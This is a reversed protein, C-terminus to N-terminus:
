CSCVKKLDAYAVKAISSDEVRRVPQEPMVFVKVVGDAVARGESGRKPRVRGECRTSWEAHERQGAM